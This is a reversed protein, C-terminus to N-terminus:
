EDESELRKGSILLRSGGIRKQPARANATQGLRTESDYDEYVDQSKDGTIIANLGDVLTDLVKAEASLQQAASATEEANAANDQTVKDMESVATNVQAIGQAQETSATAIESVLVAIKETGDKIGALHSGVEGSVKVGAGAYKQANEILEATTKAAQASRQALNRVEEAVVAFGKGAEGARAAEVAANLALLNTQFAIEDITRLIKATEASSKDIQGIANSMRQMAEVGKQVLDGTEKMLGDAHRAHDANRSNMATIEELSASTEEIGSAQESAGQALSQASEAVQSSAQSVHDSSGRLQEVVGGIRSVLGRAVVIWAIASLVVFLLAIGLVSWLMTKGSSEVTMASALFEDEYSGVGIIWDWPAFYALKTVKSRPAPDGPNQWPYRIEGIEGPKLARAIKVIDQIFLRGDTDKANWLSEGDRKGDQSVVYNGESDLVFVYGTEGVLIKMVEERVGATAQDKVGYYVMGVLNKSDDYFPQYGTFYWSDVVFARGTFAEGRLVKALVPNPKGDSMTAPIYTGIARLGEQNIVNTAIRLMDGSDNMKQFVTCTGGIISTLEDVIPVVSKADSVHGLYIDGFMMKPLSIRQTQGSFQNRADWSDTESSLYVRGKSMLLNLAVNVGNLSERQVANDQAVCLAYVGDTMHELDAHATKLSEETATTVLRNSQVYLVCALIVLPLITFTVGIFTLRFRLGTKM